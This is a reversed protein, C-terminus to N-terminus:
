ELYKEWDQYVEYPYRILEKAYGDAAEYARTLADKLADLIYVGDEPEVDLFYNMYYEQGVSWKIKANFEYPLLETAGYNWGLYLLSYYQQMEDSANGYVKDCFEAILADVDEYPNWLLKHYIWYTMLNM